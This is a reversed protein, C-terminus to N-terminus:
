SKVGIRLEVHFKTLTQCCRNPHKRVLALFIHFQEGSMWIYKLFDEGLHACVTSGLALPIYHHRCKTTHYFDAYLFWM